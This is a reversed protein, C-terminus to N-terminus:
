DGKYAFRVARFFEFHPRLREMLRLLPEDIREVEKALGRHVRRDVAAITQGPDFGLVALEQPDRMPSPSLPGILSAMDTKEPLPTRRALLLVTELGSPGTLRLGGDLEAPCALQTRPTEAEARSQFDRSWPYLPDVRGQSDLWLLYFYASRNARAVLHVLEGRRVPLARRDEVDLNRRDLDVESWIRVSLEGSLSLEQSPVPDPRPWLRAFVLSGLLVLGCAASLM